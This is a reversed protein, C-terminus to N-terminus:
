TKSPSGNPKGKQAEPSPTAASQGQTSPASCQTPMASAPHPQASLLESAPSSQESLGAQASERDRGYGFEIVDVGFGYSKAIAGTSRALREDQLRRASLYKNLKGIDNYITGDCSLERAELLGYASADDVVRPLKGYRSLTSIVRSLPVFYDTSYSVWNHANMPKKSVHDRSVVHLHLQQMYPVAHFGISFQCLLPVGPLAVVGGDDVALRAVLSADSSSDKTETTSHNSEPVSCKSVSSLARDNMSLGSDQLFSDVDKCINRHQLKREGKMVQRLLAAITVALKQMKRLM